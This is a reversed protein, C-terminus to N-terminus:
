PMCVIMHKADDLRCFSMGSPIMFCISLTNQYIAMSALKEESSPLLGAMFLVIESAWWESIMLLGPLGVYVYVYM